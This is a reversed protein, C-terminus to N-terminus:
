IPNHGGIDAFIGGVVVNRCLRYFLGLEGLTDAIYVDPCFEEDPMDGSSRLAARLGRNEVMDFIEAGRATHRPVIVTLLGPADEEKTGEETGADGKGADRALARHVSVALEEEGPHTSAWLVLPRGGTARRVEKLADADCPLPLAAYKLNSAM